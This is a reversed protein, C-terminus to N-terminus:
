FFLKFPFYITRKFFICNDHFFDLIETNFALSLFKTKYYTSQLKLSIFYPLNSPLTIKRQSLVRDMLPVITSLSVGNLSISLISFIIGLFLYKWDIKLYNKIKIYEKWM